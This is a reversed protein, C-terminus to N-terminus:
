PAQHRDLRCPELTRDSPRLHHAARRFGRRSNGYPGRAAARLGVCGLVVFLAGMICILRMTSPMTVTSASLVACGYLLLWTGPLLSEMGRAVARVHARRRRAPRSLPVAFIEQGARSLARPRKARGRAGHARRRRPIRHRRRAGLDGALSPGVSADFGSDRRAPRHQGHGRGGNGAGGNLRVIRHVHPYLRANRARPDRDVGPRRIANAGALKAKARRSELRTAATDDLVRCCLSRSRCLRKVARGHARRCIACAGLEAVAHDARVGVRNDDFGLPRHRSEVAILGQDPQQARAPILHAIAALLLM